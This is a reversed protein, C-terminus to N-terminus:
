SKVAALLMNNFAKIININLSYSRNVEGAKMMEQELSVTNGSQTTEWPDARKATAAPLDTAAVSIHMPNTTAMDLQTRDLIDQFSHVDRAAFGPTNANAINAAVTAQRISLWRAQQSAIDFLHIPTV